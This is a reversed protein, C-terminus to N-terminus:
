PAQVANLQARLAAAMDPRADPADATLLWQIQMGDLVAVTLRAATEPDLGPRLRGEDRWREFEGVARDVVRRYREQFYAHAPHGPSTAEASLTAYLEVIGPRSANREVVRTLAEVYEHGAALDAQFAAEDVEDRRELVAALLAAKSPFHHLLGPHSIGVRAAVERLSATRYGVEGFLRMAADLIEARTARGRAYGGSRPSGAETTM